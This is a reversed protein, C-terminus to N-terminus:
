KSDGESALAKLEDYLKRTNSDLWKIGEDDLQRRIPSMNLLTKYARNGLRDLKERLGAERQESAQLKDRPDCTPHGGNGLRKLECVGASLAFAEKELEALKAQQQAVTERLDSERRESAKAYAVIQHAMSEPNDVDIQMDGAITSVMGFAGIWKDREREAEALEGLCQRLMSRLVEANEYWPYKEAAAERMKERTHETM